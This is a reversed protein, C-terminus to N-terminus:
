KRRALCAELGEVLKRASKHARQDDVIHYM